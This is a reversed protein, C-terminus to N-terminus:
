DIVFSNIFFVKQYINKSIVTEFGYSIFFNDYWHLVNYKPNKTEENEDNSGYLIEENVQIIKGSKDFAYFFIKHYFELYSLTFLNKAAQIRINKEPDFTKDVPYLSVLTDWKVSGTENFAVIIADTFIYGDFIEETEYDGDANYSSETRYTSEYFEQVSYYTSDFSVIDHNLYNRYANYSKGKAQRKQRRELIKEKSEDSYDSLFNELDLYNYFNVNDIKNNSIKGFYVGISYRMESSSYTGTFYYDGLSDSLISISNLVNVTDQSIQIKNSLNGTKDFCLANLRYSYNNFTNLFIFYENKESVVQAGQYYISQTNNDSIDVIQKRLQGTRLDFTMLYYDKTDAAIFFILDEIVSMDLIELKPPFHGNFRSLNMRNINLFVLSFNNKHESFFLYLMSDNQFEYELDWYKEVIFNVEKELEFKKDFKKFEYKRTHLNQSLFLIGREDFEYVKIIKRDTFIEEDFTKRLIIDSQSFVNLSLILYTIILLNRM